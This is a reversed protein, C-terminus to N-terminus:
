CYRSGRNSMGKGNFPVPDDAAEPNKVLVPVPRQLYVLEQFKELHPHHTEIM